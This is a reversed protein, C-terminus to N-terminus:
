LLKFDHESQKLEGIVRVVKWNHKEEGDVEEKTRKKIAVNLQRKAERGKLEKYAQRWPVCWILRLSNQQFCSLWQCM